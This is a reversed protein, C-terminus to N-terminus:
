GSSGTPTTTPWPEPYFRGFPLAAGTLAAALIVLLGRRFCSLLRPQARKTTRRRAIHLLAPPYALEQEGSPHAAQQQQAASVQAVAAAVAQVARREQSALAASSGQVLEYQVHFVDPSHQVGLDEKVHHLLGRGEDSTSQVIAVAL